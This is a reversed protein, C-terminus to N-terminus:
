GHCHCPVAAPDLSDLMITLSMSLAHTKLYILTNLLYLLGHISSMEPCFNFLLCCFSMSYQPACDEDCDKHLLTFLLVSSM